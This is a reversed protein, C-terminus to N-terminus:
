TEYRALSCSGDGQNSALRITLSELIRRRLPHITMNKSSAWRGHVGECSVEDQKWGEEGYYDRPWTASPHNESQKLKLKRHLCRREGRPRLAFPRRDGHM